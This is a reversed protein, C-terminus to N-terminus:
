AIRFEALNILLDPPMRYQFRRRGYHSSRKITCIDYTRLKDSFCFALNYKKLNINICM